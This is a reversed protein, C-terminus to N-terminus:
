RRVAFDRPSFATAGRSVTFEADPDFVVFNAERGAAIEGARDQLGPLGRQRAPCGGCWTRWRLAM